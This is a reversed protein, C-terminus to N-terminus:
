CCRAVSHACARGPNDTTFKWARCTAAVDGPDELSRLRPFLRPYTSPRSRRTSALDSAREVRGEPHSVGSRGPHTSHLGELAAARELRHYQLAASTGESVPRGTTSHQITPSQLALAQPATM